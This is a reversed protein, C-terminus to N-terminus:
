QIVLYGNPDSSKQIVLNKNQLVLKQKPDGSKHDALPAGDNRRHLCVGIVVHGCWGVVSESATLIMVVALCDIAIERGILQNTVAEIKVM